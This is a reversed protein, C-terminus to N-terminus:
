KQRKWSSLVKGEYPGGLIKYEYSDADPFQLCMPSCEAPFGPGKTTYTGVFTNGEKRSLSVEEVFGDNWFGVMRVQQADPDWGACIHAQLHLSRTKVQFDLNGVLVKGHPEEQLSVKAEFPDGKSVQYRPIDWLLVGSGIWTGTISKQYASWMEGAPAGPRRTFTALPMDPLEKGDHTQQKIQWDWSDPGRTGHSIGKFTGYQGQITWELEAVDGVKTWIGEGRGWTGFYAHCVQSKEGNWFVVEMSAAVKKGNAEWYSDNVMFARDPSWRVSFYVRVTDGKKIPGSDSRVQFETVWDGVQWEIPKLHEYDTSYEGGAVVMGWGLALLGVMLMNTHNM